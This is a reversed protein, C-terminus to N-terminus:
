APAFVRVPTPLGRVVHEGVSRVPVGSAHVFGESLLIPEGFPRCLAELRSVRNVAEGIVTFDLRRSAGINGWHVTGVDLAVGASAGLEPLSALAEHAAALAEACVASVDDAHTPFLALLGDGIFKLVEGGHAHIERATVEFYANLLEITAEAGIQRTRETFDRMDSMWVVADIPEIQGRRIRGGLIAEGTRRGVYTDLLMVATRDAEHRALHLALVRHAHRLHKWQADTFGGEQRTAAILVSPHRTSELRFAAYETFGEAALDDLIPFDRVADPGSLKRRLLRQGDFIPKLPSHIFRPMNLEGHPLSLEVFPQDIRWSWARGVLTPDLVLAAVQLRDVPLDVARAREAFATLLAQTDDIVRADDLLWDILPDTM